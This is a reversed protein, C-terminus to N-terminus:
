GGPHSPDVPAAPVRDLGRVRLRRWGIVIGTLSFVLGCGCLTVILGTRLLPRANLAPVDLRHLAGYLWRYARSSPDSRELIVGSAADIHYWIDSCVSRFVPAGPMASVIAYNDDAAIVTPADCQPALRDVFRTIEDAGLFAKTAPAEAGIAFLRQTELGTRERRYFKRDFAFWEIERTGEKASPRWETKSLDNWAPVSAVRATEGATLAGTSFLRGSDVSLWGSFSWSVLFAMCALGLLHHWKHWGRYPSGIGGAVFRIMGLLSGALATILAGLSLSWVAANWIETRSRLVTPYIWHAVSGVYNWTRERRTTDGVVDGTVSSVYLDTGAADNLAVRYLPRHRNFADGVTWQDVTLLEAFAARTVDMKRRRAHDVAIARALEESQVSADSLDAAGFAKVGIPGLVVYVPRDVRQLLRVRAADKVTGAADGPSRLDLSAEVPALGAIREIETLSPFPVFHMVMGSAFWMAFLLCFVIGLWRHVLTLVRM